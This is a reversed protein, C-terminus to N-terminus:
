GEPKKGQENNGTVDMNATAVPGATEEDKDDDGGFEDYWNAARRGMKKKGQVRSSSPRVPTETIKDAKRNVQSTRKFKRM